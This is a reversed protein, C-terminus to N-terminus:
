SVPKKIALKELKYRLTSESIKLIRATKRQNWDSEILTKRILQEEFEAVSGQLSNGIMSEQTPILKKVEKKFESPLINHNLVTSNPPALTVIREVFNELERINGPWYRQKMFELVPVDFTEAKKKQQDAFTKLFHNALLPIDNQRENLNPIHIPYVHLRYYLDERFQQLDVMKRLSSSSASIFRVDVKLPKNSGIVRVEQEQLVRMLKAQMDYPLNAIEDMFLTGHDAEKILGTREQTAGTFAGKVYGFLESELLNQPISGCDIVVFPHQKRSSFEHIARAILEKGTGTEGELLVRVDCRSAAEMAQLLEMYKKCKGLMGLPEYKTQLVTEPLPAEFFEQLKQVNRLYPAAIIAIKNLFSLDNEKFVDKKGKNLLILSGIISGEIQLLVALVSKIDADGWNVNKFRSDTKIDSTLLPKKNKMIWGSIQRRVKEYRDDPGGVDEQYITKVTQHTRPNLMRIIAIEANTLDATKEAVVRVIEAFQNQQSLTTAFEILQELRQIHLKSSRSTM